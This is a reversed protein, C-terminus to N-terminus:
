AVSGGNLVVRGRPTQLQVQLPSHAPEWPLAEVGQLGIAAHAQQLAAERCSSLQLGLLQLGSHALRDAPHPGDWEILAPLAGQHQPVGDERLSIQWRLEGGPTARSAAVPRGVDEGQAALAACARHISATRAVFHVLRPAQRVQARLGPHDMGFWRARGDAGPWPAQPDIAIIELYTQPWAPSSLLVLRNHTGMLAHRGGPGPTVGLADECWAAGQALSDAVVVLHDLCSSVRGPPTAQASTSM